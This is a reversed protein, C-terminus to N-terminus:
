SNLRRLTIDRKFPKECIDCEYKSIDNHVFECHKKLNSLGKFSRDCTPCKFTKNSHMIQKHVNMNTRVKGCQEYKLHSKVKMISM